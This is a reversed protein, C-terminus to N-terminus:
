HEVAATKEAANTVNVTLGPALRYQGGTVVMEGDKIGEDIVAQKQDMLTIKLDRQEVKNDPGVVYSYFGKQGRLVAASPVLVVNERTSVTMRTSVSLGPWLKKDENEFAAKLRITGTAADVQNNFVELQGQALFQSGDTALATVPLSGNQMGASIAPLANEPQTFIVAIPKIQNIEVIGTTSSANVINGQDVLRFGVRGKIPAKILTYDLQTKANDIAAQDAAIQATLQAVQSSQTDLQQRTAFDSKALSQYRELDRKANALNAEDQQQKAQAQELAARYPRQDIEVLVDGEKVLDGEKFNLKNIQGDVRSRVLVSNYADVTGLGTLVIPFDGIKAMVATVPVPTAGAKQQTQTGAQTGATRESAKLHLLAMVPGAHTEAWPRVKPWEYVTAAGVGAILLLMPWLWSRRRLPQEDM